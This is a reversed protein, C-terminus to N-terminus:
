PNNTLKYICFHKKKEVVVPLDLVVNRQFTGKTTFGEQKIDRRVSIYATGGPVLLDRIRNLIIEQGNPDVVNLVYNCTVLDYKQNLPEKNPFYHPDYKSMGLAEADDGRGCGYDLATEKSGKAPVVKLSYALYSM